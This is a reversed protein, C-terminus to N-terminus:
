SIWGDVGPDRGEGSDGHGQSHRTHPHPDRPKPRALRKELQSCALADCVEGGRQIGAKAPIVFPPGSRCTRSGHFARLRLAAYSWRRVLREHRSTGACWPIFLRLQPKTRRTPAAPEAVGWGSGLPPCAGRRAYDEVASRKGIGAGRSEPRRRFSSQPAPVVFPHRSDRLPPRPIRTCGLGRLMM